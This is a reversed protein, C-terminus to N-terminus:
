VATDITAIAYVPATAPIALSVQGAPFGAAAILRGLDAASRQTLAPWRLVRDLLTQQPRRDLMNAAVVVGGPRLARRATRLLEVVAGDPLTELAGTLDVVDFRGAAALGAVLGRSALTAEVQLGPVRRGTVVSAAALAMPDRDVLTLRDAGLGAAIQAVTDGTGAGVAAIQAGSSWRGGRSVLAHAALLARQRIARPDVAGGMLLRAEDSMPTDCFVRHRDIVRGAREPGLLTRLADVASEGAFLPRLFADFGFGHALHSAQSPHHLSHLAFASGRLALWQPMSPYREAHQLGVSGDYGSRQARRAQAELEAVLGDAVLQDGVALAEPDAITVMEIPPGDVPLPRAKAVAGPSAFTSADGRARAMRRATPRSTSRGELTVGAFRRPSLARRAASDAPATATATPMTPKQLTLISGLKERPRARM